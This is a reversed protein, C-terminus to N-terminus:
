PGKRDSLDCTPYVFAQILGWASDVEDEADGTEMGLEGLARAVFDLPADKFTFGEDTLVAWFGMTNQFLANLTELSQGSELAKEQAYALLLTVFAAVSQAKGWREFIDKGVQILPWLSTIVFETIQLLQSVVDYVAVHGTAFAAAKGVTNVVSSVQSMTADFCNRHSTACGFGCGVPHSPDENCVSVCVPALFKALASPQFGAPCSGYCKGNYVTECDSSATGGGTDSATLQVLSNACGPPGTQALLDWRREANVDHVHCGGDRWYTFHACGPTLRCRKQCWYQTPEKTRRQGAMLPQHKYNHAFCDPPTDASPRVDTARWCFETHTEREEWLEQFNEWLGGVKFARDLLFAVSDADLPFEGWGLRPWHRCVPGLAKGVPVNNVMLDDFESCDVSHLALMSSRNVFSPVLAGSSKARRRLGAVSDAAFAALLALQMTM